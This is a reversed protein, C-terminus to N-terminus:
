SACDVGGHQFRGGLMQPGQLKRRTHASQSRGHRRLDRQGSTSGLENGGRWAGWIELNKATAMAKHM